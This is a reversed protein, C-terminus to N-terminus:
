RCCPPRCAARAPMVSPTAPSTTAGCRSRPRLGAAPQGPGTMGLVHLDGLFRFVRRTVRLRARSTMQGTRQLHALRSTFALIDPRGLMGPDESRHSCRRQGPRRSSGLLGLRRRPAQPPPVVGRLARPVTGGPRGGCGRVFSRHLKEADFTEWTPAATEFTADGEDIGAQYIALVHDSHEPLMPAIRLSGEMRATAM